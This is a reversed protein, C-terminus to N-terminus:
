HRVKPDTHISATKTEHGDDHHRGADDDRHSRGKRGRLRQEFNRGSTFLADAFARLPAALRNVDEARAVLRGGRELERDLAAMTKDYGESDDDLWITVVRRWALVLGQLKVAGLTGETDINAAELMFRMSNLAVSNLAMASVPDRQAWASVERLGDRYPALADLRRMLVDFLRDKAPEGLLDDHTGDLVKRDIMKSFGALVAGKSPYCDRFDALTLGAQLAIDTMTIMDWPQQAALQLLAEIIKGHHSAGAQAASTEAQPEAKTEASSM